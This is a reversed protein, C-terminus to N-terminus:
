KREAREREISKYVRRVTSEVDVENNVPGTFRIEVQDGEHNHYHNHQENRALNSLSMREQNAAQKKMFGANAEMAQLMYNPLIMGDQNFSREEWGGQGVIEPAGSKPVFVEPGIEGVNYTQGSEVPGGAFRFPNFDALATGISAGFNAGAIANQIDLIASKATRAGELFPDGIQDAVGRFKRGTDGPILGIVRLVEGLGRLVDGVVGLVKLRLELFWGIVKLILGAVPAWAIAFQLGMLAVQLLVPWLEASAEMMAIMNEAILPIYPALEDLAVLLAVGFAEILEMLIPMLEPLIENTLKELYKEFYEAFIKGFEQLRPVIQNVFMVFLATLEPIYPEIAKFVALMADLVPQAIAGIAQALLSIVPTLLVISDLLATGIIQILTTIPKLLPTLAILLAGLASALPPLYPAIEALAGALATLFVTFGPALNMVIDAITPALVKGFFEAVVKVAPMLARFIDGLAGFVAQLAGQGAPSNVWANIESLLVLLPSFGQGSGVADIVGRIIGFVEKGIQWLQRLVAIATEIWVKLEGSQSVKQMWEGFTTLNDEILGGLQNWFPEVVAMVYSLGTLLPKLSNTFAELMVRGSEFFLRLFNKGPISRLFLMFEAVAYGAEEAIGRLGLTIPVITDQITGKTFIAFPKFFYEQVTKKLNKFAGSMDEIDMVFDQASPSLDKIAANLKDIDGSMAASVADSVGSTAIKLATMVSILSFVATPLFAALATLSSLAAVMGLVQEVGGAVAAVAWIAAMGKSVAFLGSPLAAVPKTIRQLMKLFSGLGKTTQKSQKETKKIERNFKEVKPTAKQYQDAVWSVRDGVSRFEMQAAAAKISLFEMSRGTKDAQRQLANLRRDAQRAEDGLDEVAAAAQRAPRSLNDDMNVDVDIKEGDPTTM